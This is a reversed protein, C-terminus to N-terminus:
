KTNEELWTIGKRIRGYLNGRWGHGGDYKSFEVKGKAAALDKKAREAMWFPCVKDDPSHEIYYARGKATMLSPLYKKNYVSMAVYSGTVATKRQLSTAYAAPGGSSWSLTFVHKPNIKHQKRVDAIVAEIFEETGFKMRTVRNKKHPWVIQQQPTWKVAVLQAVLYGGPLGNRYIRKVFPHFTESGDGGPLVVLLRYGGEPPGEENRPGILFYTKHTDKGAQLKQSPVDAVDDQGAAPLVASLSLALILSRLVAQM